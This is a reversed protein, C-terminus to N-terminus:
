PKFKANSLIDLYNNNNMLEELTVDNHKMYSLIIQYGLWVAARGPSERTFLATFPAPGVLKNITMYDTAYLMKQSILFTWMQLTNNSCWKMQDPSFGFIVSDLDNPLMQATFYAIKGEYLINSLVNEASDTNPFEGYAWAKMCDSAIYQRDMLKRQYVAFGLRAYMEEGAGLYKDLSIALLSDSIIMSQNFGSILTYIEPVIKEPFARHYRSFANSLKKELGSLDPFSETVKRYAMNMHPDTLFGTLRLPFDPDDPLGIDLIGRCYLAFMQGYHHQLQPIKEAVSDIPVAFLSQEMRDIRIQVQEETRCGAVVLSCLLLLRVTATICSSKVNVTKIEV